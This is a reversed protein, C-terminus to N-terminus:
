ISQLIIKMLMDILDHARLVRLIEVMNENTNARQDPSM